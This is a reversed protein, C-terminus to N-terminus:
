AEKIIGAKRTGAHHYSEKLSGKRSYSKTIHQTASWLLSLAGNVVGLSFQAIQGFESTKQRTRGVSMKLQNIKTILRKADQSTCYKEILETLKRGRFEPFQKMLAIRLTQQAQMEEVISQREQTYKVVLDTKFGRFSKRELELVEAYNKQLFIEQSLVGELEAIVRQYDSFLPQGTM